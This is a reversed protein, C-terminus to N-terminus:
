GRLVTAGVALGLRLRPHVVASSACLALGSELSSRLSARRCRLQQRKRDISKCIQRVASCHVLEIRCVLRASASRKASPLPPPFRVYRRHRHFRTGFDRQFVANLNGTALGSLANVVVEKTVAFGPGTSWILGSGPRRCVHTVFDREYVQALLGSHRIM